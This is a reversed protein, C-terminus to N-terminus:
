ALVKAKLVHEQAKQYDEHRGVDLWYEMIPFSVVRRGADLLKQILDTMDFSEGTPIYDCASPELLYTGANIFFSLSCRERVNTIRMDECEVVGFPVQMDYKRVGVTMVAGHKRHYDLMEQFSLGTLIDGNIVVFPGSPRKMQRLGGATGMPNNEQLYNLKVGFHEGDGFHNKISDPLYHTTLNVDRIGSRRLQEITLELLPRDGVPLMPKPVRETLPLLRRGYGGAMIVASLNVSVEPVLDKRLLFGVARNANDVVPLHNIDHENMLLLAAAPTTSRPVVVPNQSAITDCAETMAKGQLIARRIDGDTLLGHLVQGEGCLVLAGTGARDLAAIAESISAIPNIIANELRLRANPDLEVRSGIDRRLILDLLICEDDVVPLHDIDHGNMLALAEASSASTRIAVPNLSCISGCADDLSRLNLMARRVDGDTLIGMLKQDGSCLALAGTGAKDLQAMAEGISAAPSIIVSELLGEASIHTMLYAAPINGAYAILFCHITKLSPTTSPSVGLPLLV